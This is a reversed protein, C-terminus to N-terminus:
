FSSICSFFDAFFTEVQKRIMQSDIGPTARCAKRRQNSQLNWGQDTREDKADKEFSILLLKVAFVYWSPRSSNWARRLRFRNWYWFNSWGVSSQILTSWGLETSDLAMKLCFQSKHNMLAFRRYISQFIPRNAACKFKRTCVASRCIILFFLARVHLPLTHPPTPAFHKVNDICARALWACGIRTNSKTHVNRIPQDYSNTQWDDSSVLRSKIHLVKIHLTSKECVISLRNWELKHAKKKQLRKMHTKYKSFEKKGFNTKFKLLLTQIELKEPIQVWKLNRKQTGMTKSDLEDLYVQEFQEFARRCITWMHTRPLPSPTTIHALKCKSRCRGPGVWRM